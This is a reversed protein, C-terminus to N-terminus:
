LNTKVFRFAEGGDEVFLNKMMVQLPKGKVARIIFFFFRSVVLQM